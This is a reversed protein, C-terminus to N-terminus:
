VFVTLQSLITVYRLWQHLMIFSFTNIEKCSQCCQENQCINLRTVTWVRAAGYSLCNTAPKGGRRGPNPWTPNTTSLIAGPCTKEFYKPKGQWDENWWIRWWWLWGPCTCCAMWHGVHRTSGAPSWGGSHSNFFILTWVCSYTRM